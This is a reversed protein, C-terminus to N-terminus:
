QIVTFHLVVMAGWEDGAVVTYVGPIFDNFETGTWYGFLAPQLLSNMKLTLAATSESLQFVAAYDSAPQFVYSSIESLILPCSHKLNPDFLELPTASLIDEATYNGEFIAAGFPFNYTGCPGVSLGGSPWKEAATVKNTKTRMNTEDIVISVENGVHYITSDLSLSLSLGYVSQIVAANASGTLPTQVPIQTSGSCGNLAILCGIFILLLNRKITIGRRINM